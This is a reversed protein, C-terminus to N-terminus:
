VPPESGEYQDRIFRIGSELLNEAKQVEAQLTEAAIRAAKVEQLNDLAPWAEDIIEQFWPLDPAPNNPPNHQSNRISIATKDKAGAVVWGLGGGTGLRDGKEPDGTGGEGFWYTGSRM